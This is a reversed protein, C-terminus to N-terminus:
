NSQSSAIGLRVLRKIETQKAKGDLAQLIDKDTKINLKLGIFVTNKEDYKKQSLYKESEAM